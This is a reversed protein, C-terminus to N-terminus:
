KKAEKIESITINRRAIKQKGGFLSYIKERAMKENEANLLKTYGQDEGQQKFTGKIEFKM